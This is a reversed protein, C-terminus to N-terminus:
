VDGARGLEDSKMWKKEIHLKIDEEQTNISDRGLELRLAHFRRNSHFLNNVLADVVQNKIPRNSKM